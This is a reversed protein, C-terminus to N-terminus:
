SRENTTDMQITQNGKSSASRGAYRFAVLSAVVGLLGLIMAQNTLTEARQWSEEDIKIARRIAHSSERLERGPFLYEVKNRGMPYDILIRACILLIAGLLIGIIFRPRIRM